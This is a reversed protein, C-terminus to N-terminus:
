MKWTGCLACQIPGQDAPNCIKGKDEAYIWAVRGADWVYWSYVHVHGYVSNFHRLFRYQYWHEYGHWMYTGHGCNFENYHNASAPEATLEADVDVAPVADLAADFDVGAAGGVLLLAAVTLASIMRKLNTM